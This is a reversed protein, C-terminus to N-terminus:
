SLRLGAAELIQGPTLSVEGAALKTLRALLASATASAEALSDGVILRALVEAAFVDGTGKPVSRYYPEEFSQSTEGQFLATVIRGAERDIVASTVVIRAVPLGARLVALAELGAPRAAEAGREGALWGFEFRNPTIVDALPLLEDRIAAAVAESVYLGSGADGMVPDVLMRPPSQRGRLRHLLEAVLKVQREDAFYGTMVGALGELWGGGELAILQAGLDAASIDLRATAGLDPRAAFYVTPLGIVSIGHCFLLPRAVSLGVAGVGVESSIVLVTKPQMESM